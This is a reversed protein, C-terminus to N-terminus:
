GLLKSGSALITPHTLLGGRFAGAQGPGHNRLDFEPVSRDGRVFQRLERGNVLAGYDVQQPLGDVFVVHEEHQLIQCWFEDFRLELFM